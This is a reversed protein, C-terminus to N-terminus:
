FVVYLMIDLSLHIVTGINGVFKGIIILDVMSYLQQVLNALVIPIAFIVLAKFINGETLNTGVGKKSICSYLGM